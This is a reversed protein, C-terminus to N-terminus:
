PRAVQVTSTGVISTAFLPLSMFADDSASLLATHPVWSTAQLPGCARCVDTTVGM